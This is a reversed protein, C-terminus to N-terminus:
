AGPRREGVVQLFGANKLMSCTGLDEEDRSSSRRLLLCGRVFTTQVGSGRSCPQTRPLTRLEIIAAWSRRFLQSVTGAHWKSALSYTRRISCGNKSVSLSSCSEEGSSVPHCCELSFHSSYPSLIRLYTPPSSSRCALSKLFTTSKGEDRIVRTNGFIWAVRDPVMAAAELFERNREPPWDDDSDLFAIWEGRAEQIGRRRAGSLGGNQKVVVRVRSGYWTELAEAINDTSCEDDVVIIEDVPVSQALISDIARRVYERRNFTPIVASVTMPGLDTNM